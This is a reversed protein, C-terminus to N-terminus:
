TEQYWDSLLIKFLNVEQCIKQAINFDLPWNPQKSKSKGWKVKQFGKKEFNWIM